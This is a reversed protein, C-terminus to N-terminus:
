KVEQLLQKGKETLARGRSLRSILNETLLFPEFWMKYDQKTVQAIIALAEEGVPKDMEKLHELIKIDTSTLSDRVIRRSKLIRNIDKCALYDDFMALAIRPTYRCNKSLLDFIDDDIKEKFIQENYQILIKKLDEASYKELYIPEGGCRDVFPKYKKLLTYFDTTAGLFVFPKIKVNLNNGVLLFDELLLYMREALVKELNHVEDIFLIMTQPNSESKILFDKLSEETFSGGVQYVVEYGLHNAIVGALTSKGTGASGVILTHSYKHLNIIKSLLIRVRDKANSQGIYQDLNQPRFNFKVPNVEKLYFEEKNPNDQSEEKKDKGFLEMCYSMGTAEFLTDWFNM